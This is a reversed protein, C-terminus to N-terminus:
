SLGLQERFARRFEESSPIPLCFVEMEFNDIGEGRVRTGIAEYWNDLETRLEEPPEAGDEGPNPYEDLAFGILSAGRFERMTVEIADEVFYKVLLNNLEPDGSDLNTRLLTVDREAAGFGGDLLYPAIGKLCASAAKSFDAYVKSECWYIALRGGELAKAHIGDVGHIHMSTSTKLTMKCFLQPIRLLRELLLFILLEGAEGSSHVDAFLSKAERQLANFFETSGTKEYHESAEAIRSRPICYDTVESALKQALAEIRVHGNGDRAVFHCRCKARTGDLQRVEGVSVLYSDLSTAVGRSLRDVSAIFWEEHGTRALEDALTM